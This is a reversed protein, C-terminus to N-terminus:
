FLKRIGACFCIKPLTFDWIECVLLNISNNGELILYLDHIMRTDDIYTNIKMYKPRQAIPMVSEKALSAASLSM